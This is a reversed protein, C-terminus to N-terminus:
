VPQSNKQLQDRRRMFIDKLWQEGDVLAQNDNYTATLTKMDKVTAMRVEWEKTLVDILAQMTEKSIRFDKKVEAVSKITGDLLERLVRDYDPGHNLWPLKERDPKMDPQNNQAVTPTNPVPGVENWFPDVDKRRWAIEKKDDKKVFVKVAHKKQWGRIFSPNWADNAIGLDKCCRQRCDTKASELASAWSQNKNKLSYHAEGCSRSVFCGRVVMAGDYFVKAQENGLDQQRAGILTLGWRGIGLVDNLRKLTISQPVYIYGDPRIEYELDDFPASLKQM